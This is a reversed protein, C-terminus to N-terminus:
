VDKLLRLKLQTVPKLRCEYWYGFTGDIELCYGEDEEVISSIRFVKLHINKFSLYSISKSVDLIVWDGVKFKM